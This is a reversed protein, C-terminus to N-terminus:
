VHARGIEADYQQKRANHCRQLAEFAQQDYTRDTDLLFVGYYDLTQRVEASGPKGPRFDDTQQMTLETSGFPEVVIIVGRDWTLDVRWPTPNCLKSAFAM